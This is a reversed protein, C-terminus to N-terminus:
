ATETFDYVLEDRVKVVRERDCFPCRATVEEQGDQVRVLFQPAGCYPCSCELRLDEM